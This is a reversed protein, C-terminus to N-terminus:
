DTISKSPVLIVKDQKGVRNGSSTGSLQVLLPMLILSPVLPIM